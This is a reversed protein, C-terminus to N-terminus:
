AVSIDVGHYGTAGDPVVDARESTQTYGTKDTARVQLRHEGPAADWEWRWQVWTDESPVSALEAEQWGDDDVRVEVKTIGTHQAWAVGAVTVTGADVPERPVDIRSHTKIPGRASWGRTTWYADADDFRTVEWDTVWKTASVYGYLGPVVQRVPFGHEVPLPVGDMGVALLADRGDTLASLPTGCTWGDESTSLLMDAGSQVGAEDLLDKMPVGSFVTNSILDGGVPNSVCCLTVWADRLGRDVLDQYTVTLERDVLGHIRLTWETPDILPPSLATDIRYFARNSTRWPAQGDVNLDVGPPTPLRRTPLRLSARLRDLERRRRRRSALLESATGAVATAVAVAAVLKIMRRRSLAQGKESEDSHSPERHLLALVGLLVLGGVLCAIVGGISGYPRTLVAATAMAVLVAVGAVARVRHPRWWSGILGGLLLMVVVVVVITLPKDATGVVSIIPEAVGGPTLRIATQAIALVPSERVDLLAATLQSAALAAATTLV